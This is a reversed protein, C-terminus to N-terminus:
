ASLWSSRHPASTYIWTKKVEASSPPIHLKVSWGNEGQIVGTGTPYSVPHAGSSDTCERSSFYHHNTNTTTDTNHHLLKLLLLQKKREYEFASLYITFYTYNDLLYCM